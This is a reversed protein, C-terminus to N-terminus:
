PKGMEAVWPTMPPRTATPSADFPESAMVHDLSPKMAPPHTADGKRPM